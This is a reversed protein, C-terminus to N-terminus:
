YFNMPNLPTGRFPYGSWIAFHIHVGTAAGTRGMGGIPTGKEVVQGEQVYRCGPCM